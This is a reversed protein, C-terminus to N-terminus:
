IELPSAPVIGSRVTWKAVRSMRRGTGVPRQASAVAPPSPSLKTRSPAAVTVAFPRRISVLPVMWFFPWANCGDGSGNRSGFARFAVAARDKEVVKTKAMKPGYASRLLWPRAKKTAESLDTSYVARGPWNRPRSLSVSLPFRLEWTKATSSSVSKLASKWSMFLLWTPTSTSLRSEVTAAFAPYMAGRPKALGLFGSRCVVMSREPTNCCSVANAPNVDAVPMRKERWKTSPQLKASSSGAGASFMEASGAKGRAQGLGRDLTNSITSGM